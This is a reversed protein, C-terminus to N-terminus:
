LFKKKQKSKISKKGPMEEKVIKRVDSKSVNEGDSNNGRVAEIKEKIKFGLGTLHFVIWLVILILGLIFMWLFVKSSESFFIAVIDSLLENNGNSFAVSLPSLFAGAIFVGIKKLALIILSGGVVLCGILLLSNIRREMLLVILCSLLLSLVLAKFFLSKWFNRAYDSVLFLPVDSEEFCKVFSCDYDKYYFDSLLYDVSYDIISDYGEQVVSCPYVFIYGDFNHVIETNTKCFVDLYPTLEDVISQGGIQNEVIEYAIPQVNEYNLSLSISVCIGAVLISLFLLVSVIVIGSGRLVGM